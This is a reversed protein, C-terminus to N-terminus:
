EKLIDLIKSQAIKEGAAHLMGGCGLIKMIL